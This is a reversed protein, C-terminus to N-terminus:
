RILRRVLLTPLDLSVLVDIISLDSHSLIIWICLFDIDFLDNTCVAVLPVDAQEVLLGHILQM